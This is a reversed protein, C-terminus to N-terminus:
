TLHDVGVLGLQQVFRQFAPGTKPKTLGDAVMDSTGVFEVSIRRRRWLM